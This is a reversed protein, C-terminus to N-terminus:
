DATLKSLLLAIKMTKEIKYKMFFVLRLLSSIFAISERAINLKDNGFSNELEKLLANKFM